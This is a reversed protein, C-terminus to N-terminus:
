DLLTFEQHLWTRFRRVAKSQNSGTLLYFGGVEVAPADPLEVLTGAKMEADVHLPTALSGELNKVQRSVAGPTVSLEGAGAWKEAVGAGLRQGM